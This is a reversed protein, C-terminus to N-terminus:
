VKLYVGRRDMWCAVGYWLLVTALAFALSANVPSLWSAFVFVDIRSVLSFPAGDPGIGWAITALTAALLESGVYLAIANKGYTIFPAAWRRRGHVDVLWYSLGFLASGLGTTLLVFSPSWLGKNIPFLLGAPAWEGWGVAAATLAAGAGLFGYTKVRPAYSSRLWEGALLGLLASAIAPFTSLFGEPDWTKSAQWLHDSSLLARDIQAALNTQMELNPTAGEPGVLRTMAFWYGLLVALALAAQTRRGLWRKAAWAALYCIAIRQLVGPIRLHRLDFLPWTNVLLGLGFLKAARVLAPRAALRSSFTLAMGVIFLFFPFILDTPTWGHWRAHQLPWYVNLFDGPDNVLIMAAITAGRFADLSVLRTANSPTTPSGM